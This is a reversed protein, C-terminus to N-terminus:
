LLGPLVRLHIAPYLLIRSVPRGSGKTQPVFTLNNMGAAELLVLFRHGMPEGSYALTRDSMATLAYYASDPFFRLM